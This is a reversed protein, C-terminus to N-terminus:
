TLNLDIGTRAIGENFEKEIGNPPQSFWQITRGDNQGVFKVFKKSQFFTFPWPRYFVVVGVEIHSVVSPSINMAGQRLFPVTYSVTPDLIKQTPSGNGALLFNFSNGHGWLLDKIFCIVKVDTLRLYGENTVKVSPMLDNARFPSEQSVSLRPSLQILAILGIATLMIGLITWFQTMPKSRPTATEIAIHPSKSERSKQRQNCKCKPKKAM